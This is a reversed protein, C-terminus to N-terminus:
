RNMQDTGSEQLRDHMRREALFFDDESDINISRSAPMVYGVCRDGQLSSREMLISRKVAYIAGNVTYVPPLIQRPPNEMPPREYDVLYGTHGDVGTFRKMKMPHDNDVLRVSIVSDVTESLLRELAGDVDDPIKLPTTPQLMAVHSYTRREITEMTALAHQLVPIVPALDTAMDAPRLFPAKAGASIAIGQIEESDTTVVVDALRRCRLATEITWVMLPKGQLARINKGPVGKSGARAPIVGLAAMGHM